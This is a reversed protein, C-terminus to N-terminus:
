TTAQNITEIISGLAVFSGPASSGPAAITARVNVAHLRDALQVDGVSSLRAEASYPVNPAVITVSPQNKM